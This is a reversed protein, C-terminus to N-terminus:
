LHRAMENYGIRLTLWSVVEVVEPCRPVVDEVLLWFNYYMEPIM